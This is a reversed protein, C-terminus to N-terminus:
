KKEKKDPAPEFPNHVTIEGDNVTTLALIIKKVSPFIRGGGPFLTEDGKPIVIIRKILTAEASPSLQYSNDACLKLLEHLLEPDENAMNKLTEFYIDLIIIEKSNEPFQVIEVKQGM